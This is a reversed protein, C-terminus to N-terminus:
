ARDDRCSWQHCRHHALTFNRDRKGEGKERLDVRYMLDYASTDVPCPRKYRPVASGVLILFVTRYQGMEYETNSLREVYVFSRFHVLPFIRLQMLDSDSIDGRRIRDELTPMREANLIYKDFEGRGVPPNNVINRRTGFTPASRINETPQRQQSDVKVRPITRSYLWGVIGTTIATPSLSLRLYDLIEESHARFVTCISPPIPHVIFLGTGFPGLPIQGSGSNTM